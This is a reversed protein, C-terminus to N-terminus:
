QIAGGEFLLNRNGEKQAEQSKQPWDNKPGPLGARLAPEV